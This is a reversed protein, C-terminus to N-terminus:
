STEVLSSGNNLGIGRPRYYVLVGTGVPGAEDDLVMFKVAMWGFEEMLQLIGKLAQALMLWKMGGGRAPQIKM